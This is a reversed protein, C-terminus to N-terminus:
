APAAAPPTIVLDIGKEEALRAIEAAPQGVAILPEWKV